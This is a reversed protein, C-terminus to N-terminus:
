YGAQGALAAISPGSPEDEVERKDAKPRMDGSILVPDQEVQGRGDEEKPSADLDYRGQVRVDHQEPSDKERERERTGGRGEEVGGRVTAEDGRMWRWWRSRGAKRGDLGRLQAASLCGLEGDAMGKQGIEEERGDQQGLGDTM